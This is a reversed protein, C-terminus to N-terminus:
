PCPEGTVPSIGGTAKVDPPCPDDDAAVHRRGWLFGFRGALKKRGGATSMLMIFRIILYIAIIEVLISWGIDGTLKHLPATVADGMVAVLTILVPTWVFAYFCTWWFFAKTRTTLAGVALYLPVRLGPLIRCMAIAAWPRRDFWAGFRELREPGFGRTFFRLKMLGKGSLRGLFFFTLDGIYIGLFCALVGVWWHMQQNGILVGVIICIADESILTGLIILAFQAPISIGVLSDSTPMWSATINAARAAASFM